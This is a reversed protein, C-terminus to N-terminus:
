TIYMEDARMLEWCNQNQWDNVKTETMRALMERNAEGAL